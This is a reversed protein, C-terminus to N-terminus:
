QCLRGQAGRVQGDVYKVVGRIFLGVDQDDLELDGTFASPRSGWVEGDESVQWAYQLDGLGDDDVLGTTNISLIKDETAIGSLLAM